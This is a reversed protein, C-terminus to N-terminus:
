PAQPPGILPTKVPVALGVFEILTDNGFNTVWLNGSADIEVAFAELMGSDPAWGVNPSLAQGPNASASGALQTLSPGRFNAIWVNGVGDIAIGQPHVIGGGAINNSLVTGNSSVRSVNDGYFNSIWIYGNQDIALGNPGNCCSVRLAQVGDSSIRTVVDDNQDGIWGNHNADIAVTVPFAVSPVTYGAAGSLPQGSSSLLTIHSNGYDAVWATGDTDIAVSVPYNLGGSSFGTPGSISQGSSNLVSVTGLGNNVAAPSVEYPIWVNDNADIALGYSNILGTTSIGTPTLPQGIPSFKTAVGYYGSVWINGSSDIGLAGPASMGGGTYSIFLTWDSPAKALAPAFASSAIAQTYLGVVNLGPNHVLNIIADFTNTPSATGNPTAAAFFKTCATFDNVASTCTNLLNALTNLRPAPSKATAPFTAGPSTGTAPNILNTVTAFANALGNTNTASAGLSTASALFQSLGWATAVTTVENVVFQSSATVQNCAGVITALAIAANAASAGVKGGRVVLYLQSSPAPCPYGSSVTFSGTPDTTPLTTLLPTAASANGTLGAAYVQIAAGVIPQTGAIAKGSFAVGPYTTVVPPAPNPSPASSRTGSGCGTLSVSLVEVATVLLLIRSHPM